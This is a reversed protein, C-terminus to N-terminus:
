FLKMQEYSDRIDRILNGLENPPYNTKTGDQEPYVNNERSKTRGSFAYVGDAIDSLAMKLKQPSKGHHRFAIFFLKSNRPMFSKIDGLQRKYGELGKDGCYAWKKVEMCLIVNSQHVVVSDYLDFGHERYENVPFKARGKYLIVDVQPSIVPTKRNQKRLEEGTKNSSVIVGTGIKMYPFCNRLTQILLLQCIEGSSGKHRFGFEHARESLVVLTKQLKGFNKLNKMSHFQMNGLILRRPQRFPSAPTALIRVFAYSNGNNM